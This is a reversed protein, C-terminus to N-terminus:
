LFNNQQFYTEICNKTFVCMYESIIKSYQIKSSRKPSTLIKYKSKNLLIKIINNSYRVLIDNIPM